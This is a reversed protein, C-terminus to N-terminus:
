KSAASELKDLAFKQNTHVRNCESPPLQSGALLKSYIEASETYLGLYYCAIAMEDQARWEYVSKDVFLVDNPYPLKAAVSACLYAMPWDSNLRCYKALACLPEARSPRFKYAKLYAETVTINMVDSCSTDCKASERIVGIQLLSYWREQDWGGLAFRREYAQKAELLMGAGLYSQALYFAHRTNTPEAQLAQELVEADHKYKTTQNLNRHGDGFSDIRVNPLLEITAGDCMLVEHVAGVYRWATNAKLVQTRTYRLDGLAIQVNYGDATLQSRFDSDVVLIEDADITLLYDPERLRALAMGDNRAWAFDIWPRIHVEGPIDQM